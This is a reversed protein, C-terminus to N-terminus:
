ITDLPLVSSFQGGILPPPLAILGNFIRSGVEGGERPSLIYLSRNKASGTKGRGCLSLLCSARLIVDITIYIYIYIYIYNKLNVM